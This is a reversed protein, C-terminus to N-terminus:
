YKGGPRHNCLAVTRQGTGFLVAECLYMHTFLKAVTTVHFHFPWSNLRCGNLQSDSAWVM